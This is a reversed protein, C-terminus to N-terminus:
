RDTGRVGYLTSHGPGSLFLNPRELWEGSLGPDGIAAASGDIFAYTPTREGVSHLATRSLDQVLVKSSPHAVETSRIARAMTGVPTRAPDFYHRDAFLTGSAFFAHPQAGGWGSSRQEPQIPWEPPHLVQQLEPHEPLLVESWLFARTAMTVAPPHPLANFDADTPFPYRGRNRDAHMSWAAAVSRHGSLSRVSRAQDRMGQLAPLTIGIVAAVVTISVLTEIITFAPANHRARSCTQRPVAIRGVSTALLLALVLNRAIGFILEQRTGMGPPSWGLCGCRIPEPSLTLAFLFAAFALLLAAALRRTLTPRFGVLLAMGAGAEAAILMFILPKFPLPSWAPVGVERLVAILPAPNTAKGFAAGLFIAGAVIGILHWVASRQIHPATPM